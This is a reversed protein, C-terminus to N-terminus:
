KKFRSNKFALNLEKYDLKGKAIKLYEFIILAKELQKSESKVKGIIHLLSRQKGPTLEHFYEDAEPDQYCLEEFFDPVHIGYKSTDKKITVEAKNGKNLKWKKRFDANLMVFFSGQGDSLMACHIPTSENVTCIIRKDTGKFIVAIDEPIYVRNTWMLTNDKVEEIKGKFSYLM